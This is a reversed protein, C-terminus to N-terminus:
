FFFEMIGSIQKKCGEGTVINIYPLTFKVLLNSQIHTITIMLKHFNGMNTWNHEVFYFQVSFWFIALSVFVRQTSRTSFYLFLHMCVFCLKM